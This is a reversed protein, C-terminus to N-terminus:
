HQHCEGINISGFLKQALREKEERNFPMMLSDMAKLEHFREMEENYLEQYTKWSVTPDIVGDNLFKKVPEADLHISKNLCEMIGKETQCKYCTYTLDTLSCFCLRVCGCTNCRNWTPKYISIFRGFEPFKNAWDIDELTGDDPKIEGSRIKRAVYDLANRVEEDMVDYSTISRATITGPWRMNTGVRDLIM